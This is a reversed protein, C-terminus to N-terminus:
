KFTAALKLLDDVKEQSWGLMSVAGLFLPHEKKFTSAHMWGDIINQDGSNAVLAEVAQRDAPNENLAQKIQYNTVQKPVKVVRPKPVIPDTLYDSAIITSLMGTHTVQFPTYISVKVGSRVLQAHYFDITTVLQGKGNSDKPTLEQIKKIGAPSIFYACTSPVNRPTVGHAGATEFSGDLEHAQFHMIDWGGAVFEAELAEIDFDPMLIVDDELVLTNQDTPLDNYLDLHALSCAVAGKLIGAQKSVSFPLYREFLPDDRELENGRYGEVVDHTLGLSELNSLLAQYREGETNLTIVKINM